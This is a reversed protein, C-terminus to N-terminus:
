NRIQLEQGYRRGEMDLENAMDLWRLDRQLSSKPMELINKSRNFPITSYEYVVEEALQGIVKKLRKRTIIAENNRTRSHEEGYISHYLGADVLYEPLGQMQLISAVGKLHMISKKWVKYWETYEADPMIVETLYQKLLCELYLVKHEMTTM